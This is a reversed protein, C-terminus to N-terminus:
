FHVTKIRQSWTTKGPPSLQSRSPLPTQAFVSVESYLASNVFLLCSKSRQHLRYFFPRMTASCELSSRIVTLYHEENLFLIDPWGYCYYHSFPDLLQTVRNTWSLFMKAIYTYQCYPRIGTFLRCWQIRWGLPLYWSPFTAFQIYFYKQNEVSTTSKPLPRYRTGLRM